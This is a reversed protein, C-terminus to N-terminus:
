RTGAPLHGAEVPKLVVTCGSASCSLVGRRVIKVSSNDPFSVHYDGEILASEAGRMEPDGQSYDVRQPRSSGDFVLIFDAQGKQQSLGRLKVSSMQALEAQAQAPDSKPSVKALQARSAEAEAGGAAVALSLMHRAQESDGAKQYIRSLRNAVAGSHSLTWASDLYRLGEMRDGKLYDAWGIRAWELALFYMSSVADAPNEDYAGSDFEDAIGELIKRADALTQDPNIDDRLAASFWDGGTVPATNGTVSFLMARSKDQSGSSAYLGALALEVEPDGPSAAEIKELEIMAESNRKLQVLLLAHSKRAVSDTPANELQKGYAGLADQYKGQHFLESGLDNWARKHFANVEVQKRFAATAEGHNGLGAYARGLDDWADESDPKQEVVKKFLESASQFNRQELARLGAKRLEQPTGSVPTASASATTAAPRADCIISQDAYNTAVSRLSEVDPRRSAPLKSVKTIYTQLAELTNGTLNYKLSYQGYDRAISVEPPVRLTYNAAFELHARSHVEIVPGIELPKGAKKKPLAPSGSPPLAYLTFGSTPVPIYKEVQVKYRIRLPSAPEELASIDVDSVKGRYGQFFAVREMIKQWDAQSNARFAARLPVSSDGTVSMEVSADLTGSESIKGNVAVEVTNKVPSLAPTKRLGGNADESAVVAQKDRLVYLILGYPAIEATSDLWVWDKDILALTIVHDFQAPSPVDEDLKRSSDILVPYSQIGAAKLLASLLTHKDKCDGYSGAMVETAAHPQYRGVGFSLSVYRINRAVYDYIRRAKEQPTTAGRTLEAAKKRVADDVVVREGQLKAYWRAIAQWDKFTTLQVDPFEQENEDEDEAEQQDTRKTKIDQVVWSYTRREGNDATTYKRSPSKLRLERTKPVDIELRAENVTVNRPFSYEFWFEGPALASVIQTTTRYELVDGPRLGVVTVHRERYDSYMPASRLVEPAFDQANAAPTEVVEGGPKRVRVYNVDLKETASSYGFVLQGFAQIGAESQVRVAYTRETSGTGDNEFRARVGMQQIVAAEQASDNGSQPKPQAAALIALFLFLAPRVLKM